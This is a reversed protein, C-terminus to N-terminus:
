CLCTYNHQSCNIFEGFVKDAFVPTIINLAILSNMLNKLCTENRQASCEVMINPDFIRGNRIITSGIPTREFLKSVMEVLFTLCEERFKLVQSDSVKDQRKLKALATETSFGLVIDKKEMHNEKLRVDISKLEYGNRCAEIVKSKVFLKLVDKLLKMLDNYMFPIMPNDAQYQTLYPLLLSAIYSFFQLKVITFSDGVAVQLTKYSNCKPQKAASLGEWFLVLKEIYSWIGIAKDAVPKSEVWRTACFAM